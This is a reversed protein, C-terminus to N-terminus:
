RTGGLCRHLAAAVADAIQADTPNKPLRLAPLSIRSLDRSGAPLAGGAMLRGLAREIGRGIAEGSRSGEPLGSVALHDIGISLNKM